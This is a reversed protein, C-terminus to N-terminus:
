CTCCGYCCCFFCIRVYVVPDVASVLVAAVSDGVPRISALVSLVGVKSMVVCVIATPVVVVGFKSIVVLVAPAPISVAVFM